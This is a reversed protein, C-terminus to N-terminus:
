SEDSHRRKRMRARGLLRGEADNRCPDPGMRVGKECSTADKRDDKDDVDDNNRRPRDPPWTGAREEAIDRLSWSPLSAFCRSNASFPVHPPETDLAKEIDSLGLPGRQGLVDLLARQLDSLDHQTSRSAVYGGQGNLM